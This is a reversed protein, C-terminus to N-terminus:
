AEGKRRYYDILENIARAATDVSPFFPVGEKVLRTRIQGAERWREDDMEDIGLPRSNFILFFPKPSEQSLKIYGEINFNMMKRYNELSLPHEDSAVDACIFDFDDSKAMELLLAPVTFADGPISNALSRDAPNGLSSWLKSGRKKFEERIEQPLPLVEFGHEEWEDVSVTNRGGGAGGTGTRRGKIPPLFTFAVAMHVLDDIDRVPIGGAQRIAIDWIESAVALSDTHTLASRAGAQSRGGKCIIVPKTGSARRILELFNRGDGRLGEIFALIVKTEPDETFYRLLDSENIDLANGYSVVKSFKLGRLAGFKVLDISSGGSQIMAGVGGKEKPFDYGFSFGSDPCYIGMCNPGLLRIGYERARKLIVAELAKAEPRGTESGRASFIHMARVGKLSCSQLLTPVHEIAICCVVYDINGPVDELSPYAKLGMIESQNPNIPYLEGSFGYSLMHNMYCYGFSDPNESAGVIAVFEPHFLFELSDQSV